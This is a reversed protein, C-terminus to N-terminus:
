DFAMEIKWEMWVKGVLAPGPKLTLKGPRWGAPTVEGTAAVHQYAQVQRITEAVNRGVDPTLVEYAVINGEPTIIFRGRMDVAAAEDYVGYVAGIRGGPDTLMPYPFGGTVMKALEEEQWIKHTFRSDASIALVQVGLEDFVSKKAAVAAL